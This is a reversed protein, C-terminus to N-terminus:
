ELPAVSILPVGAARLVCQVGVGFPALHVRQMGLAEASFPIRREPMGRRILLLFGRSVERGSEVGFVVTMISPTSTGARVPSDRMSAILRWVAATPRM